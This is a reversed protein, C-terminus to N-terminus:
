YRPARRVPSTPGPLRMMVHQTGVLAPWWRAPHQQAIRILKGALVRLPLRWRSMQRFGHRAFYGPKATGLWILAPGQARARAVAAAMLRTGVGAGHAEPRVAVALIEVSDGPHRHVQICGLTREGERAVQFEGLDRAVQWVPQQFLSPDAHNAALTAVIDPLDSALAPSVRM